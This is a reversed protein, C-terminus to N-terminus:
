DLRPSPPGFGTSRRTRRKGTRGSPSLMPSHTGDGQAVRADLRSNGGGDQEARAGRGRLLQQTLHRGPQQRPQQVDPRAETEAEVPDNPPQRSDPERPFFPQRERAGDQEAPRETRHQQHSPVSAHRSRTSRSSSFASPTNVARQGTRTGRSRRSASRAPCPPWRRRRQRARRGPPSPDLENPSTTAPRARRRSLNTASLRVRLTARVSAVQSAATLPATAPGTLRTSAKRSPAVRGCAVLTIAAM